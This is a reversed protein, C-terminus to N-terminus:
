NINIHKITNDKFLLESLDILFHKQARKRFLSLSLLVLYLLYKLSHTKKERDKPTNRPLHPTVLALIEVLVGIILDWNLYGIYHNNALIVVAGYSKWSNFHIPFVAKSLFSAFFCTFSRLFKSCTSYFKWSSGRYLTYIYRDPCM